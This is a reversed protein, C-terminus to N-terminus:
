EGMWGPRTMVVKPAMEATTSARLALPAEYLEFALRVSLLCFIPRSRILAAKIRWSQIMALKMTSAM